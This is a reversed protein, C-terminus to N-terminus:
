GVELSAGVPYADFGREIPDSAPDDSLGIPIVILRLQGLKSCLPKTQGRRAYWRAM